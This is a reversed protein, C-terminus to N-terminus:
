LKMGTVYLEFPTILFTKTEGKFDQKVTEYSSSLKLNVKDITGTLISPSYIPLKYNKRLFRPKRPHENENQERFAAKPTPLIQQTTLRHSLTPKRFVPLGKTTESSDKSRTEIKLRRPSPNYLLCRLLHFYTPNNGFTTAKKM